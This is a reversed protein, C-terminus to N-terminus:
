FWEPLEEESTITGDENLQAFLYIIENDEKVFLIINTNKIKYTKRPPWHWHNNYYETQIGMRTLDQITNGNQVFNRLQETTISQISSESKNKLIFSLKVNEVAVDSVIETTIVEM